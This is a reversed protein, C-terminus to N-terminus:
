GKLKDLHRFGETQILLSAFLTFNYMSHVVVGCAVSDTRLRVICLVVSVLGILLVPGWSDAVQQAHLLAFPVSTLIIALPIGISRVAAEGIMKQREMWRFVNILSPLLFGRFALEETLPALTIGFIMLLWAGVQSKTLDELIPPAKPMPVFSGALTILLGTLIGIFALRLFWRRASAANWHVGRLLSRGWWLSFVLAALGWEVGYAAGQMVIAYRVERGMQLMLTTPHAPHVIALLLILTVIYGGVFAPFFLLFFVATHGLNPILRPPEPPLPEPTQMAVLPEQPPPWTYLSSDAPQAPLPNIPEPHSLDRVDGPEPAPESGPDSNHEPTPEPGTSLPQDDTM